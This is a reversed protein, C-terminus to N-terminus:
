RRTPDDGFDVRLHRLLLEDGAPEEAALVDTVPGRTSSRRTTGPPALGSVLTSLAGFAGATSTVFVDAKQGTWKSVVNTINTSGLSQYTEQDVIKGGLQTWRAKFAAVVDKFYVIVTDTALAATRWGRGWAYQAMASGEDQAVNGFSFALNGKPGFRKPGMQDTGICPAVTLLGANISEQM